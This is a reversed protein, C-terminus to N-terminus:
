RRREGQDWGAQWPMWYSPTKDESWSCDCPVRREDLWLAYFADSVDYHFQIHAADRGLSHAALSRARQLGQSWWRTQCQVSQDPLLERVAAMIDRMRGKLKLRGEVYDEALEGVRGAKLKALSAWHALELQVPAEKHGLSQGSPLRLQMNAPLASEAALVFAPRMRM